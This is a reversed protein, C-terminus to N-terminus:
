SGEALAALGPGTIRIRNVEVPRGDAVVCEAKASALGADVLESICGLLRFGRARM